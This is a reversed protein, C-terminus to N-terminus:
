DVRRRGRKSPLRPKAVCQSLLDALVEADLPGKTQMGVEPATKRRKGNRAIKYTTTKTFTTNPFTHQIIDVDYVDTRGTLKYAGPEGEVDVLYQLRVHGRKKCPRKIGLWLENANEAHGFLLLVDHQEETVLSEEGVEAPEQDQNRKNQNGRPVQEGERHANNIIPPDEDDSGDSDSADTADSEEEGSLAQNKLEERRVQAASGEWTPRQHPKLRAYGIAPHRRHRESLAEAAMNRKEIEHTVESPLGWFQEATSDTDEILQVFAKVGGCKLEVKSGLEGPTIDGPEQVRRYVPIVGHKAAKKLWKRAEPKGEAQFCETMKSGILQKFHKKAMVNKEPPIVAPVGRPRGKLVVFGDTGVQGDVGRWEGSEAKTKWQMQVIGGQGREIKFARVAMPDTATKTFGGIKNIYPGYFKDWDYQVDLISPTPRTHEQRWAQPYRALFDVFTLSTFNGLVENHIQHQQDGGNHTHGPPGYVFIIVDYWGLMVLHSAFAFLINNKNESFNDAILTLKRAFRAIDKGWKSSRILVYLSTALRNAGKAFRNKATYIYFDKGRALDAFLAPILHFRSTTLNKLTRKTLRPFGLSLTDDYWFAQEDRPNHRSGLVIGTEHDRWGRKENQHDQWELEFEKQDYTSKFATL